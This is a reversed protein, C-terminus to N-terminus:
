HSGVILSTALNRRRCFKLSIMFLMLSFLLLSFLFLFFVFPPVVGFSLLSLLVTTALFRSLALLLSLLLFFISSSFFSIFFSLRLFHCRCTYWLVPFLPFAFMIIIIIEYHLSSSSLIVFPLFLLVSFSHMSSSQILSLFRCLLLFAFISKTSNRERCYAFSDLVAM